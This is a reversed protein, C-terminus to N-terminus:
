KFSPLRRWDITVDVLGGEPRVAPNWAHALIALRQPVANGHCPASARCQWGGSGADGVLLCGVDQVPDNIM